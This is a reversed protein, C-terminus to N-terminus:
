TSSFYSFSFRDDLFLSSLLADDGKIFVSPSFDIEKYRHDGSRDFCPKICVTCESKACYRTCGNRKTSKKRLVKGEPCFVSCRDRSIVFFGKEALSLREEDPLLSVVDNHEKSIM